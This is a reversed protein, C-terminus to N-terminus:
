MSRGSRRFSKLFSLRRTSLIWMVGLEDGDLIESRSSSSSANWSCTRRSCKCESSITCFANSFTAPSRTSTFSDISLDTCAFSELWRLNRWKMLAIELVLLNNPFSNSHSFFSPACLCLLGSFPPPSSFNLRLIACRWSVDTLFNESSGYDCNKTFRGVELAWATVM